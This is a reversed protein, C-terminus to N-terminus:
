KTLKLKVLFAGPRLIGQRPMDQSPISTGMISGAAWGNVYLADEQPSLRVTVGMGSGMALAGLCSGSPSYKAVLAQLSESSLSAGHLDVTGHFQGTIYACDKSDTTLGMRPTRNLPVYNDYDAVATPFYRIWQTGSRSVKALFYQKKVNDRALIYVAGGKGLAIQTDTLEGTAQLSVPFTETLLGNTDLRVINYGTQVNVLSQTASTIPFPTGARLFITANGTVTDSAVDYALDNEPGGWQHRVSLPRRNKDQLLVFCDAKGLTPCANDFITYGSSNGITPRFSDTFSGVVWSSYYHYKNVFNVFQEEAYLKQAKAISPGLAETGYSWPYPEKDPLGTYTNYKTYPNTTIYDFTTLYNRSGNIPYDKLLAFDGKGAYNAVVDRIVGSESSSIDSILLNGQADFTEVVSRLSSGENTNGASTIYGLSNIDIAIGKTSKVWELSPSFVTVADPGIPFLFCSELMVVFLAISAFSTFRSNM